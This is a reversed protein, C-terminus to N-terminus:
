MAAEKMGKIINEKVMDKLMHHELFAGIVSGAVPPIDPLVLRYKDLNNALEKKLLKPLINRNNFLGGCLIVDVQEQEHFLKKDLARINKGIEKSVDRLIKVAIPDNEEYAKFVLLTTESIVRKPNPSQYIYDILERTDNVKFRQLLLHLLITEANRGDAFKLAESIGRKGVDYGSGEDGLLYGWGGVRGHQKNQNIGYTISGTGCIQVIGPKGYTGSFLANITDVTVTIKTDTTFYNTIKNKLFLETKKSGAGAIGAFVSKVRQLPFKKEINRFITNFTSELKEKSVGNPNTSGYIHNFLINGETDAIAVQTMTGGGDIGIFYKM